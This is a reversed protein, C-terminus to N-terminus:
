YVQRVFDLYRGALWQAFAVLGVHHRVDDTNHLVPKNPVAAGNGASDSVAAAKAEHYSTLKQQFFRLEFDNFIKSGFRVIDRGDNQLIIRQIRPIHCIDTGIGIAYPFPRPPM